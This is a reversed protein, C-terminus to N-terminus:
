GGCRGRTSFGPVCFKHADRRHAIDSMSTAGLAIAVAVAWGDMVSFLPPLVKGAVTGAMSARIPYMRQYNVIVNTFRLFMM